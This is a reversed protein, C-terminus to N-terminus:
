KLDHELHIVQGTECSKVVADAVEIGHVADKFSIYDPEQDTAICRCIYMLQERLSGISQGLMQFHINTDPSNRGTENWIQLGCSSTDFHAMGREGVIEVSDAVAIRAEEPTMWNSHLFAIVGSEFELCVWLVEPSNAGSIQKSYAKVTRVRSNTYWIALDLDHITLEYVTHTRQYTQFLAKSRSRKLYLSIPKGIQRTQIARYIEAYRPDFRLLHGPLLLRNNELAVQQMFYAEDLRTTIPKEVLVHKGSCLALRAPELHQKEYTVISILDIEDHSLLQEYNLYSNPIQYQAAALNLREVRSDCVAVVNVYPLSSYADLHSMGWSGLGIIGVNVQKM